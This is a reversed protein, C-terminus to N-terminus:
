NQENKNKILKTLVYKIAEDYANSSSPFYFEDDLKVKRPVMRTKGHIIHINSCDVIIPFWDLDMPIISIWFNFNIFIWNMALQHSICITPGKETNIISSVECGNDRLLHYVDESCISEEIGENIKSM